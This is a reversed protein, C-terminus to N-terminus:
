MEWTKPCEQLVSKGQFNSVNKVFRFRRQRVRNELQNLKDLFVKPADNINPFARELFEREKDSVQAGSISKIYQSLSDITESRLENYATPSTDLYQKLANVRSTIPGTTIGPILERIRDVSDIAFDYQTLTEVQKDSLENKEERSFDFKEESLGLRREGQELRRGQNL